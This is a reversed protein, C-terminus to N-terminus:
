INFHKIVPDPVSGMYSIMKNNKEQQPISKLFCLAEDHSAQEELLSADVSLTWNKIYTILYKLLNKKLHRL